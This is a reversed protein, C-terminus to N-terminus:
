EVDKHDAQAQERGVCCGMAPKYPRTSTCGDAHGLIRSWNPDVQEDPAEQPRRNSGKGSM